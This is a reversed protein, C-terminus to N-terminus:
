AAEAGQDPHKKTIHAIKETTLKNYEQVAILEETLLVGSRHTM